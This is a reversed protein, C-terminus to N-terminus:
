KYVTATPHVEIGTASIDYPRPQNDIALGRMKVVQFVRVLKSGSLFTRLLIIGQTLYEEFQHEREWGTGKLESILLNTCDTSRLDRLLDRMAYIREIEDPFQLTFM